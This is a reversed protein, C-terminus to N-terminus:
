YFARVTSWRVYRPRWGSRPAMSGTQSINAQQPGAERRRGNTLCAGSREMRLVARRHPRPELPARCATQDM